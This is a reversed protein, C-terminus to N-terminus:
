IFRIKTTTIRATAAHPPPLLPELASPPPRPPLPDPAFPLPPSPSLGLTGAVHWVHKIIDLPFSHSFRPPTQASSGSQTASLLHTLLQVFMLAAHMWLQPSAADAFAIVSHVSQVFQVHPVQAVCHLWVNQLMPLVPLPELPPAHIASLLEHEVVSAHQV